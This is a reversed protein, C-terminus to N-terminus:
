KIKHKTPIIEDKNANIFTPAVWKLILTQEGDKKSGTWFHHYHGRRIHSSKKSHRNVTANHTATKNNTEANEQDSNYRIVQGIRYGVKITRQKITNQKIPAITPKIDPVIVNGKVDTIEANKACIYTLLAIAAYINKKNNEWDKLFQMSVTEKISAIPMGPYYVKVADIYKQDNLANLIAKNENMIADEVSTNQIPFSKSYGSYPFYLNISKTPKMTKSFNYDLTAFVSFDSKDVSICVGNFPMCQSFTVMPIGNKDDEFSEILLSAIDKDFEYVRKNKRWECIAHIAPVYKQAELTNVNYVDTLISTIKGSIVIQDRSQNCNHRDIANFIGPFRKLLRHELEIQLMKTKSM